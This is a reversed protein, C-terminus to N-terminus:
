RLTVTVPHALAAAAVETAIEAPVSILVLPGASSTGRGGAPAPTTVTLVTALAALLRHGHEPADLTVVDVRLGAHLLEAIGPDALRIPVTATGPGGQDRPPVGDPGVLRVDTIPEGARAAGTLVHGAAAEPATLAGAPRVTDPVSLVRLDPPHLTSGAALDRASVVTPTTAEGSAPPPHVAM